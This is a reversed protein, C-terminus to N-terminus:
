VNKVSHNSFAMSRPYISFFLPRSLKILLATASSPDPKVTDGDSHEEKRCLSLLLDKRRLTCCQRAQTKSTQNKLIKLIFDSRIRSNMM